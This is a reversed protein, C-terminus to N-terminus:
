LVEEINKNTIKIIGLCGMIKIIILVSSFYKPLYFNTSNHLDKLVTFFIIHILATTRKICSIVFDCIPM